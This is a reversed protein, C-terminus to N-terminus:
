RRAGPLSQLLSRPWHAPGPRLSRPGPCPRCAAPRASGSPSWASRGSSPRHGCAM